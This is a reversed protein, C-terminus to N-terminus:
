TPGCSLVALSGPGTGAALSREKADILAIRAAMRSRIDADIGLKGLREVIVATAQPVIRIARAIATIVFLALLAVVAWVVISIPDPM